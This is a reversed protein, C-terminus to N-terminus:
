SAEELSLIIPEITERWVQETIPGIQKYRIRGQRDVIFTEPAGTVGLDIALKSDTDLGVKLYPNGYKRLWNTGNEPTDRWDVGYIAIRKERTLRLLTQHEVVCATCWSGFVNVMSIKGALDSTAFVESGEIVPALIFDPMDRDIMTSPLIRPDNKLGLAFAIGIALLIALPIFAAPRIKM